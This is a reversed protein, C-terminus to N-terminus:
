LYHGTSIPNCYICVCACVERGRNRWMCVEKVTQYGDRLFRKCGYNGQLKTLIDNRIEQITDTNEM